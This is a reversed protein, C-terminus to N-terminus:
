IHILSLELADELANPFVHEPATRYDLSVVRVGGGLRSLRVANQRYPNTLPAIYAGGHLQYVVKETQTQEPLIWELHSARLAQVRRTYGAPVRWELEPLPKFQKEGRAMHRAALAIAERVITGQLSARDEQPEMRERLSQILRSLRETDM